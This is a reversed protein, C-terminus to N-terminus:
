KALHLFKAFIGFAFINKCFNKCFKTKKSSNKFFNQMHKLFETYKPFDKNKYCLKWNNECFKRM